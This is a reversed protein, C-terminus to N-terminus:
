IKYLDYKIEYKLQSKQTSNYNVSFSTVSIITYLINKRPRFKTDPRTKVTSYFFGKLLRFLGYFSKGLFGLNKWGQAPTKHRYSTALIVCTVKVHAQVHV